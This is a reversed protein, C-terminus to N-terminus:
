IIILKVLIMEDDRVDDDNGDDEDYDDGDTGGSGANSDVCKQSCCSMKPQLLKVSNRNGNTHSGYQCVCFSERRIERQLLRLLVGDTQQQHKQSTISVPCGALYPQGIM